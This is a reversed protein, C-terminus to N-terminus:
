GCNHFFSACFFKPALFTLFFPFFLFNEGFFPFFLFIKLFFSFVPFFPFFSHSSVRSNPQRGKKTRNLSLGTKKRRKRSSGPKKTVSELLESEAAPTSHPLFLPSMILYWPARRNRLMHVGNAYCTCATQTAHVRRIDYGSIASVGLAYGVPNFNNILFFITFKTIM